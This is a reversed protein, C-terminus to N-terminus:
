STLSVLSPFDRRKSVKTRGLRNLYQTARLYIM